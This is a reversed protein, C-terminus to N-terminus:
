TQVALSRERSSTDADREARDAAHTGPPDDRVLLETLCVSEDASACRPFGTRRVQTPEVLPGQLDAGSWARRRAAWM